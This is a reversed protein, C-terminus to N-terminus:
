GAAAMVQAKVIKVLELVLYVIKRRQRPIYQVLNRCKHPKIIKKDYKGCLLARLGTGLRGTGPCTNVLERGMM